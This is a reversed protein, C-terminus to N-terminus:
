HNFEKRKEGQKISDTGGSGSKDLGSDIGAASGNRGVTSDAKASNSRTSDPVHTSNGSKCAAISGAVLLLGFCFKIVKKM